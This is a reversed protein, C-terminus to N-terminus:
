CFLSHALFPRCQRQHNGHHLSTCGKPSPASLMLENANFAVSALVDRGSYLQFLHNKPCTTNSNEQLFKFYMNWHGWLFTIEQLVTAYYSVKLVTSHKNQFVQTPACKGMVSSAPLLKNDSTKEWSYKLPQTGDSSVCKLVIDKGEETPGDAYCRPKSPKM